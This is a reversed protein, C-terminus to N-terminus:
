GVTPRVQIPITDFATSVSGGPFVVKIEAKYTGVNALMGAPCVVAVRGGTGPTTYANPNVSGDDNLTGALKTAVITNLVVDDPTSFYFTTVAASVDIQQGTLKDYLWLNITPTDNQVLRLTSAM